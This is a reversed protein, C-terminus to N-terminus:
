KRMIAKKGSMVVLCRVCRLRLLEGPKPRYQPKQVGSAEILLSLVAARRNGRRLALAPMFDTFRAGRAGLPGADFRAISL